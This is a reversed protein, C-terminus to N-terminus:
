IKPRDEAVASEESGEPAPSAAVKRKGGPKKVPELCPPLKEKDVDLNIREGARLYRAGFMCDKLVRVDMM